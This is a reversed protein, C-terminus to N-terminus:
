CIHKMYKYIDAYLGPRVKYSANASFVAQQSRANAIRAENMLDFTKAVYNGIRSSELRFGALTRLRRLARQRAFYGCHQWIEFTEKACEHVKEAYEARAAALIESNKFTRLAEEAAGKLDEEDYVTKLVEALEEYTRCFEEAPGLASFWTSVVGGSSEETGAPLGEMFALIGELLDFARVQAELSYKGTEAITQMDSTCQMIDKTMM